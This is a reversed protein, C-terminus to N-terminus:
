YLFFCLVISIKAHGLFYDKNFNVGDQYFHRLCAEYQLVSTMNPIMMGSFGIKSLQGIESFQNASFWFRHRILHLSSITNYQFLESAIYLEFYIFLCHIFKRQSWPMGIEDQDNIM